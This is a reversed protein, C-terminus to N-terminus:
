FYKYNPKTLFFKDSFKNAFDVHRQIPKINGQTIEHGLFQIKIQFLSIKTKSLVLSNKIIIDIHRM